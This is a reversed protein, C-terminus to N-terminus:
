KELITNLRTEIRALSTNTHQISKEQNSALTITQKLMEDHQGVRQNLLAVNVNTQNIFMLLPTLISVIMSSVAIGFQSWSLTIGNGPYSNRETSLSRTIM